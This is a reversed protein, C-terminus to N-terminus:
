LLLRLLLVSTPQLLILLWGLLLTARCPVPCVSLLWFGVLSPGPPPPHPVASISSTILSASSNQRSAPFVTPPKLFISRVIFLLYPIQPRPSLLLSASICAKSVLTTLTSTRPVIVFQFLRLQMLILVESNKMSKPFVWRLLVSRGCM